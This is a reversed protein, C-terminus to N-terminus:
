EQGGPGKARRLAEEKTEALSFGPLSTIGLIILTHLYQKPYNVCIVQGGLGINAVAEWLKFLVRGLPSDAVMLPPLVIVCSPLHERNNKRLNQYHLVVENILLNRARPQSQGESPKLRLVFVGEEVQGEVDITQNM